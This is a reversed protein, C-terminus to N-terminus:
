RPSGFIIRQEKQWCSVKRWEVGGNHVERKSVGLAGKEEKKKKKECRLLTTSVCIDGRAAVWLLCDRCGKNQVKKWFESSVGGRWRRILSVLCGGNGAGKREKRSWWTNKLKEFDCGEVPHM